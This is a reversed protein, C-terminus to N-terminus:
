NTLGVQWARGRRRARGRRPRPRSVVGSSRGPWIVGAKIGGGAKRAGRSDRCAWSLHLGVPVQAIGGASLLGMIWVGVRRERAAEPLNKRANGRHVGGVDGSCEGRASVTHRRYRGWPRLCPRYQHAPSARPAGPRESKTRRAGGPVGPLNVSAAVSSCSPSRSSRMRMAVPAPERRSASAAARAKRARGAVGRADQLLHAGSPCEDTM